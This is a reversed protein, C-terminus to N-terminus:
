DRPAQVHVIASGPQCIEEIALIGSGTLAGTGRVYFDLAKWGSMGFNSDLYCLPNAELQRSVGLGRKALFFLCRAHISLFVRHCELWRPVGKSGCAGSRTGQPGRTPRGRRFAPAWSSGLSLSALQSAGIWAGLGSLRGGLAAARWTGKSAARPHLGGGTGLPRDNANEM